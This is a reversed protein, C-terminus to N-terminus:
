STNSQGPTSARAHGAPGRGDIHREQRNRRSTKGVVGDPERRNMKWAGDKSGIVLRRGFLGGGGALWLPWLTIKPPRRPRTPAARRTDAAEVLAARKGVAELKFFATHNAARQGAAKQPHSHSHHISNGGPSESGRDGDNFDYGTVLM